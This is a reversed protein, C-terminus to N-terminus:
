AAPWGASTLCETMPQRARLCALLELMPQYAMGTYPRGTKPHKAAAIWDSVIREFEETTTGAHTAMAMELLAHEGGAMASKVDGKLVSAFPEKDKWEPHQPALAKVRDFVFAAQVYM